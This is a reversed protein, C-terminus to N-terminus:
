ELAIELKSSTRRIAQKAQIVRQLYTREIEGNMPRAADFGTVWDLRWDVLQVPPTKGAFSAVVKDYGEKVAAKGDSVCRDVDIDRSKIGARLEVYLTRVQIVCTDLLEELTRDEARIASIQPGAAAAVQAVLVLMALTVRKMM